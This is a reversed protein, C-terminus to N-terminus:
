LNQWTIPGSIKLGFTATIAADPSDAAKWSLVAAAFNFRGMGSPMLLRFNRTAGAAVDAMLAAQSANQPLFNATVSMTVGDKLGAIYERTGGPSDLNTVEVIAAEVGFEGINTVEALTVFGEPSSGNGVQLLSTYGLKASTAM